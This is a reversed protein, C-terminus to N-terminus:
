KVPCVIYLPGDTSLMILVRLKTYFIKYFVENQTDANERM